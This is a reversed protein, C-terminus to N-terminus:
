SVKFAMDIPDRCSCFSEATVVGEIKQVNWERSFTPDEKNAMFKELDEEALFFFDHKLIARESGFSSYHAKMSIFDRGGGGYCIYVSLIANPSANKNINDITACICVLILPPLM